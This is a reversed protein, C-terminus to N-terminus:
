FKMKVKKVDKQSALIISQTTILSVNLVMVAIERTNESITLCIAAHTTSKEALMQYFKPFFHM